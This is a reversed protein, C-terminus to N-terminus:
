GVSTEGAMARLRGLGDVLAGFAVARHSIRKKEDSALEAMTRGQPDDAVLFVPDYGFGHDGRPATAIRGECAGEAAFLRGDPAVLVLACVFRATRQPEAVATLESLLKEWRAADSGEAYRASRIGPRGGLADVCLGSDDALAWLGTDRCAAEAKIRANELFTTGSEDPDTAAAFESLARVKVSAQGFLQQFERVKGANRTALVLESPITTM